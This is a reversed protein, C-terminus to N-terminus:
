DSDPSSASSIEDDFASSLSGTYTTESGAIEPPLDPFFRPSDLRGIQMQRRAWERANLVCRDPNVSAVSLMDSIQHFTDIRPPSPRLTDPFNVRDPYSISVPNVFISVRRRLIGIPTFICILAASQFPAQHTKSTSLKTTAAETLAPFPPVTSIEGNAFAGRILDFLQLLGKGKRSNVLTQRCYLEPDIKMHTQITKTKSWEAPWLSGVLDRQVESNPAAFWAEVLPTSLQFSWDLLFAWPPSPVRRHHPPKYPKSRPRNPRPDQLPLIINHRLLKSNIFDRMEQFKSRFGTM